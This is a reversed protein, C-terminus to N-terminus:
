VDQRHCSGGLGDPRGHDIGDVFSRDIKLEEVPLRQLYAPSSYGTGFYDVSIRVGLEHARLLGLARGPRHDAAGAPRASGAM